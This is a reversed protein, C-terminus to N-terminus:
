SDVLLVFLSQNFFICVLWLLCGCPLPWILLYLDIRWLSWVDMVLIISGEHLVVCQAWISRCVVLGVYTRFSVRVEVIFELSRWWWMSSWYVGQISWSSVSVSLYSGFESGLDWDHWWHFECRLCQCVVTQCLGLRSVLIGPVVSHFQDWWCVVVYLGWVTQRFMLVFGMM